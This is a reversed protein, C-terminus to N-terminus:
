PTLDLLIIDIDDSFASDGAIRQKVTRITAGASVYSSLNFVEAIASLRMDDICQFLYMAMLRVPM